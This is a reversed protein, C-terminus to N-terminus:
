RAGAGVAQAQGKKGTRAYVRGGWQTGEGRRIDRAAELLIGATLIAGPIHYLAHRIPTGGWAHGWALVVGWLAFAAGCVGACLWALWHGTSSASIAGTIAGALALLPLLVSFTTLRAAYRTLRGAELNAAEGYIRKWGRKFRDYERYMRCGVLGDAALWGLGLKRRCIAKAIRQDELIEGKFKAHTGIATYAERTFLMFQGNAVARPRDLRNVRRPPYQTLLEYCAVPQVVREFWADSTLNTMLSLLGLGRWRMMAVAARLAAAEWITDADAFCVFDANQAEPSSVYAHHVAHVKGVWDPPCHDLEIIRVRPDEGAAERLRALTDDTCRDLVFVVRFDPYDQALLTRAVTQINAGENHAPIIVCVGPAPGPLPPRKLADRLTPLSKIARVSEFLVVGWYGIMVVACALLVCLAITLALTM